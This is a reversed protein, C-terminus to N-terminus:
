LNATVIQEVARLASEFAGQMWQPTLSAHEGAMFIRREPTLLHQYHGDHQWPTPWCFAGATFPNNNWSFSVTEDILRAENIQPHIKAVSEMAVRSIEDHAVRGLPAPQGWSYSQLMVGPGESVRQNHAQANDSPYYSVGTPLDTLTGGGHIGEDM